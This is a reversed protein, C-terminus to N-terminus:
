NQLFEPNRQVADNMAKYIDERPPLFGEYKLKELAAKNEFQLLSQSIANKIQQPLGDRTIWPKTPCPFYALAKIKKGKAVSKKFTKENLAGADFKNADLVAAVKDHRGLYSFNALDGAKIGHESLLLQSLYRGTTSQENGFAFSKGKLNEISNLESDSPVAIVGRFYYEGKQSEIAQIEIGPQEQKAIVYSVPGFRSFDVEGAILQRRGEEYDAAIKIRISVPEKLITAMQKELENLVPRFKIVMETPKNSAYLGFILDVASFAPPSLLLVATICVFKWASM